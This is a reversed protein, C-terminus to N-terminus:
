PGPPGPYISFLPTMTAFSGRAPGSVPQFPTGDFLNTAVNIYLTGVGTVAITDVQRAYHVHDITGEVNTVNGNGLVSLNVGILNFKLNTTNLSIFRVNGLSQTNTYMGSEENTIWGRFIPLQPTFNNTLAPYANLVDYTFDNTFSTGFFSSVNTFRLGDHLFIGETGDVPNIRRLLTATSWNTWEQGFLDIAIAKIVNHTSVLISRQVYRENTLTVSNPTLNTMFEYEANISFTLFEQVSQGPATRAALGLAVALGVLALRILKM